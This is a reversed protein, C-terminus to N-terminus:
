GRLLACLSLVQAAALDDRSIRWVIVVDPVSIEGVVEIHPQPLGVSTRKRVEERRQGHGLRILKNGGRAKVYEWMREELDSSADIVPEAVAAQIRSSRAAVPTPVAARGNIVAASSAARPAAARLVSAETMYGAAGACLCSLCLTRAQSAM